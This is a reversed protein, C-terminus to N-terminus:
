DMIRRFNNKWVLKSIVNASKRVQKETMKPFLIHLTEHILTDLYDKSVQRPDIEILKKRFFAQGMARERGLKRERVKIRKM